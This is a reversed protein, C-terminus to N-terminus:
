LNKNKSKRKVDTVHYCDVFLPLNTKAEDVAIGILDFYGIIM